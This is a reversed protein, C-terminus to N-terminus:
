RLEPWFYRFGSRLQNFCPRSSHLGAQLLSLGFRLRYFGSQMLPLRSALSRPRFRFPWLGFGLLRFGSIGWSFRSILNEAM